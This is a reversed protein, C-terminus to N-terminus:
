IACVGSVCDLSDLGEYDLEGEWAELVESVRHYPIAEFPEDDRSGEQYVTFGKLRPLYNLTAEMLEDFTVDKSVNITKSVANDIYKQAIAQMKLHNQVSIDYAGQAEDPHDLYDKHVVLTTVLDTEGAKAGAVKRRRYYAPAFLPEIGATCGHIMSTTGTPAITLLACNRIGHEAIRNRLDEPLSQIFPSELYRPDYLPFPGKEIALDVSVSYAMDRIFRFVDEAFKFGEASDYQYGLDLMVSHLGMIGLGIRREAQCMKEIQHHPYYNVDLVNDLFRVGTRVAKALLTWDFRGNRVFSPLVLAGLDCCGYNPLWIEGCNASVIGSAIGAVPEPDVIIYTHADDVTGNYVDAPDSTYVAVVQHDTTNRTSDWGHVRLHGERHESMSWARIPQGVTLDRAKIKKGRFTYFHHDPTCRVSLGSDFVVEVTEASTRTKRPNRMWRIVPKKTKPHWAYVLVDDGSKALDDFRRPGDITMIQTDGTVCPNTSTLAHAYGVNNYKEALWQNLIGPEGSSIANSVIRDLFPKVELDGYHIGGHTVPITDDNQYASVLDYPSVTPPIVISVNANNLEKRNLKVNVFEMVDPHDLSLCMMMAARRNGGGVMGSAISDLMKMLSVPGTASGGVGSIGAGNPRISSFNFGVGGGTGTVVTLDYMTQGWDERSDGTPVVFCNLMQQKQRGAGYWIRGGPMFLGQEIATYFDEYRDIDHVSVAMAVRHCAESWSEGDQAYRENFITLGLGRPEM